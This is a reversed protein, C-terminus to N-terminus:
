PGGGADCAGYEVIVASPQQRERGDGPALERELDQHPDTVRGGVVDGLRELLRDGGPDDLLRRSRDPVVAESVGQDPLRDVLLEGLRAARLQMAQDPLRHFGRGAICRVLARARECVVERCCTIRGLGVLEVGAGGGRGLAHVRDLGRKHVARRRELRAVPEPELGVALRRNPGQEQLAPPHSVAGTIM